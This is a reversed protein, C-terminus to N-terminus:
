RLSDWFQRTDAQVEVDSKKSLRFVVGYAKLNIFGLIVRREPIKSHPGPDNVQAECTDGTHGKYILIDHVKLTIKDLPGFMETLLQTCLNTDMKMSSVKKFSYLDVAQLDPNKEGGRFITGQFADVKVLDLLKQDNKDIYDTEEKSHVPPQAAVALASMMVVLLLTFLKSM